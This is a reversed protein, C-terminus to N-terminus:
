HHYIETAFRPTVLSTSAAFLADQLASCLEGIVAAILLYSVIRWVWLQRRARKYQPSYEVESDYPEHASYKLDEGDRVTKSRDADSLPTKGAAASSSPGNSM